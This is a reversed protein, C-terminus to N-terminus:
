PRGKKHSAKTKAKTPKSPVLSSPDPIFRMMFKFQRVTFKAYGFRPTYLLGKSTLRARLPAVQESTKHLQDFVDLAKREHLGLAAM